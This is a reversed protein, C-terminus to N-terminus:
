QNDPQLVPARYLPFYDPDAAQSYQQQWRAVLDTYKNEDLIMRYTYFDHRRDSFGAKFEFLSDARGGVGGGLHLTSFGAGKAWRIMYHLMLKTPAVKRYAAATGSLHFEVIGSTATAFLGGAAMVGEPSMVACLHLSDGLALRLNNFYEHSFIYYEKAVVRKMTAQYIQIFAEVSQWDDVVVSFGAKELKRIGARHDRRTRLGLEDESLTLDVSVTEGHKMLKGFSRLPKAPLKLLPHLRFFSTVLHSDISIRVFTELFRTLMADDVAPYMLPTPYGYPAAADQWWAEGLYDPLPRILLPALFAAQGEEAYFALPTGGEISSCLELYAPRHYFDHPVQQLFHVWRPDQLSIFGAQM